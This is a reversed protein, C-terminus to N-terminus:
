GVVEAYVERMSWLEVPHGSEEAAAVFGASFGGASVYVLPASRELARHAWRQGAEKARRLMTLHQVHVDATVPAASWKVAGSLVRGDALPAVLDVELSERDRDVGEWRGWQTAMPLGRVPALRDYTQAAIQEFAFGLYSDLHPAVVQAWVAEPSYRNLLSANPEVFRHHFQMAQDALLYQVPSNRKAEINVRATLYGLDILRELKDRLAQDNALGTRQAIANRETAGRAVAHLIGRYKGIDRLGDEQELSTEVLQRVEGRPHLLLRTANSAVSEQPDVAALYRPTGGFIGYLRARERLQEATARSKVRGFVQEAAYWYDFPKLAHQWAFRGYLPSGGLALGEMTAVTSGSLVVLRAGVGGRRERRMAAEYAANFESAVGALGQEGDSLYQFEDVVLIVLGETVQGAPALEFLLRFATRWTPYDEPSLSEGSWAALDAVLQARNLQPTTRAATHMFVKTDPWASALLFTKGVRRRGTLLALRVGSPEGLARLEATEAVRDVLRHRHSLTHDSM